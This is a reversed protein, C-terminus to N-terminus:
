AKTCGIIYNERKKIISMARIRNKKFKVPRSHPPSWPMKALAETHFMIKLLEVDKPPDKIANQLSKKSHYFGFL